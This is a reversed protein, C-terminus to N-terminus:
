FSKLLERAANIVAKVGIPGVSVGPEYGGEKFAEETPLYGIYDNALTLPIVVYKKFSKFELGYEVFAEGPIGLIVLNGIRTATVKTRVKSKGVIKQIAENEITVEVNEVKNVIKQDEVQLMNTLTRKTEEVASTGFKEMEEFTGGTRDYVDGGSKMKEITDETRPNINGSTGPLFITVCNYTEELKTELFGIWDATIQLNDPGLVVGHCAYNVLLAIAENNLSTIKITILEEDILGSIPNRRNIGIKSKGKNWFIKAEKKNLYAETAVNVIESQLKEFYKLNKENFGFIGLLDPAGHTHTSFIIINDQKVGTKREIEERIADLYGEKIANSLCLQDTGIFLVDEKGDSLYLARAFLPDHVGVSAKTRDFYGGLYVGPEPTIDRKAVGAILNEM